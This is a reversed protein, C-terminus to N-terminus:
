EPLVSDLKNGFLDRLSISSVGLLELESDQNENFRKL